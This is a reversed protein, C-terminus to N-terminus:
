PRAPAITRSGAAYCHVTVTQRPSWQQEMTALREWGLQEYLAAAAKDSAAVDLVPHLGRRRAEREARAILLAGIGHGRAGPAVFLRSVVATREPGTGNRDGWLAPALDGPGSPSLGVHGALRGDLEAVWAGLGGAEAIWEAPQEPWNLPYGDQRHVEALARACDGLDDETRPRLLPEQQESSARHHTM